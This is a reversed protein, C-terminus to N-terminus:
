KTLEPTSFIANDGEIEERFKLLLSKMHKYEGDQPNQEKPQKYRKYGSEAGINGLEKQAAKFSPSVKLINLECAVVVMIGAKKGKGEPGIIKRFIELYKNRVTDDDSYFCDKFSCSPRGRKVHTAERGKNDSFKYSLERSADEAKPLQSIAHDPYLGSEPVAKGMKVAKSSINVMLYDDSMTLRKGSELEVFGIIKEVQVFLRDNQSLENSYQAFYKAYVSCAWWFERFASIYSQEVNRCIWDDHIVGSATIKDFAIIFCIVLPFEKNRIVVARSMKETNTMVDRIDGKVCLEHYLRGYPRDQSVNRLYLSCFPELLWSVYENTFYKHIRREFFADSIGIAGCVIDKLDIKMLLPDQKLANIAEEYGTGYLRCQKLLYVLSKLLEIDQRELGKGGNIIYYEWFSDLHEIIQNVSYDYDVILFAIEILLEPCLRPNWINEQLVPVISHLLSHSQCYGRTRYHFDDDYLSFLDNHFHELEKELLKEKQQRTMKRPRESSNLSSLDITGIVKM